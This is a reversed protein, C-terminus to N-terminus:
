EGQPKRTSRGLRRSVRRYADRFAVGKRALELAKDAAYIEETCAERCKKRDVELHDLVLTMIEITELTKRFGRILPEKTLQLDRHYGSPLGKLIEIVRLYGSHVDAFSARALELVDPNRKQPMISSGTCLKEPLRFFGFEEMSFLVLDTALRQLDLMIQSLASLIM